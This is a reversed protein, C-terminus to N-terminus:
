AKALVPTISMEKIILGAAIVAKGIRTLYYKYTKGIKRIIGHKNM